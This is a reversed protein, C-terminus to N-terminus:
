KKNEELFKKGEDTLFIKKDILGKMTALLYSEPDNIGMQKLKTLTLDKDSDVVKLFETLKKKDRKAVSSEVIEITVPSGKKEPNKSRKVFGEKELIDLHLYITPRSVRLLKALQSITLGNHSRLLNLIYNRNFNEKEM